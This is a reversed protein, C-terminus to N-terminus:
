SHSLVANRVRGYFIVTDSSLANGCMTRQYETDFKTFGSTFLKHRFFSTYKNPNINGILVVGNPRHIQYNKQYLTQRQASNEREQQLIPSLVNNYLNDWAFEPPWGRKEVNHGIVTIRWYHLEHVSEFTCVLQKNSNPKGVSTRVSCRVPCMKKTHFIFYTGLSTPSGYGYISYNTNKLIKREMAPVFLDEVNDTSLFLLDYRSILRALIAQVSTEAITASNMHYNHYGGISLSGFSIQFVPLVYLLCLARRKGERM